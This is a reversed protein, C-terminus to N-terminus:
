CSHVQQITCCETAAIPEAGARGCLSLSHTNSLLYLFHFKAFSEARGQLGLRSRLAQANVEVQVELFM